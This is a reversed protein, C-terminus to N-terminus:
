ADEEGTSGEFAQLRDTPGALALKDGAMIRDGGAPAANVEAGRLIGVVNVGFRQRIRAEALSKGVLWAPAPVEFLSTKADIDITAMVGLAGMWGLRDPGAAAIVAARVDDFIREAPIEGPAIGTLRLIRRPEDRLGVLYLAVGKSGLDLALDSLAYAASQDLLPTGGLDIVIARADTLGMVLAQLPLANGFFLTGSVPVVYVDDLVEHPREAEGEAPAPSGAATAVAVEVDSMRKVFILSAMVMGAGVAQILDVFVTMVLVVGMVAADARPVRLFHRLGRYDVIGIGVTVLIGALVALPIGAALPALGLMVALLLAGHIVGALGTRGGAQINAVTRMTAGAGPIGGILGAVANGLGQGVLERDSDHRTRTLNDAVLSTLLSDISGLAALMFATPLLALLIAPDLPPLQLAPLGMPIAGIRPVDLRLATAVLTLAVLSVLAGPVKPAVRKTAYVLAIAAIGLALAAPNIATLAAPLRRLSGIVGPAAPVGLLPLLQLSVIIVGIGSMFGSVVPYPMYRIFGGLRLVGFLVQILGALAIAAFILRPDGTSAAVAGAVVVTMPGTPGSIQSPTGGFAAALIGVAIAGYMGAAAGLGSSVGFALALPLAIVGATLGGFLDGRINSRWSPRLDPTTGAEAM